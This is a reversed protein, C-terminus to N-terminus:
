SRGSATARRRRRLWARDVLVLLAHAPRRRRAAATRRPGQRVRTRDAPRRRLTSSRRYILPKGSTMLTGRRAARTPGPCSTPSASTASPMAPIPGYLSLWQAGLMFGAGYRFPLGLTFDVELYSQESTARRITRSDFIRVGDLTGGDLLLQYFRSLENATTVVNASPVIGTLFRPDNAM